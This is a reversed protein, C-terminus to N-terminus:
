PTRFPAKMVFQCSLNQFTVTGNYIKFAEDTVKDIYGRFKFTGTPHPLEFDHFEVPETLKDILSQYLAPDDIIGFQMQYNLYIGLVETLLDGNEENREAYKNLKDFTRQMSVLPIDFYTSDIKIGQTYEM